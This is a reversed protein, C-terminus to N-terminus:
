RLISETERMEQRLMDVEECFNKHEKQLQVAAQEIGM